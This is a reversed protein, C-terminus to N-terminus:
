RLLGRSKAEDVIVDIAIDYYQQIRQRSVSAGNPLGNEAIKAYTWGLLAKHYLVHAIVKDRQAPKTLFHFFVKWVCDVWKYREAKKPDINAARIAASAVHDAIRNTKGGGTGGYNVVMGVSSLEQGADQMFLEYDIYMRKLRYMVEERNTM